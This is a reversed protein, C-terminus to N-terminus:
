SAALNIHHLVHNTEKSRRFSGLKGSTNRAEFLQHVKAAEGLPYKTIEFKLKGEGILKFLASLAQPVQHLSGELNFGRLTINKEIMVPIVDFPLANHVQTFAL